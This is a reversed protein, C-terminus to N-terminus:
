YYGFIYLNLNLRMLILEVIPFSVKKLLPLLHLLLMNEYQQCCVKNLPQQQFEFHLEKWHVFLLYHIQESDFNQYYLSLHLFRNLFYCIKYM